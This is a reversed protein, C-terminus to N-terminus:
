PHPGSAEAKEPGNEGPPPASTQPDAPELVDATLNEIMEVPLDLSTGLDVGQSQIEAKLGELIASSFLTCYLQIARTADDNGPVPYQIKDPNSNTDLIAFIPINLRSAEQIAINEKNTDIVLLADPVGGMDKIGGLSAELKQYERQFGLQEKKTYGRIDESDLKQKLDKLRRISQSITGWNTLTGGLWRHNVYYQGCRLAAEKVLDSAQPKTGVFLIRGGQAAIKRINDLAVKLLTASSELNIVHIKDRTGYIYPQMKPNWRRAHHGFHVGAEFLQRLTFPLASSM